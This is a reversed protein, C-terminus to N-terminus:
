RYEPGQFLPIRQGVQLAGSEFVARHQGRWSLGPRWQERSRTAGGGGGSLMAPAASIEKKIEHLERFYPDRLAQRAFACLGQGTRLSECLGIGGGAM